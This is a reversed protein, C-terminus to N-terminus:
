TNKEIIKTKKKFISYNFLLKIGILFPILFVFLIILEVAIKTSIDMEMDFFGYIGVIAIFFAILLFIIGLIKAIIKKIIEM